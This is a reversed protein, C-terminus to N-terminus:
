LFSILFSRIFNIRSPIDRPSIFQTIFPPSVIIIIPLKEKM